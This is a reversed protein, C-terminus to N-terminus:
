YGRMSYLNKEFLHYRDDSSIQFLKNKDIWGSITCGDYRGFDIQCYCQNYESKLSDDSIWVPPFDMSQYNKLTYYRIM